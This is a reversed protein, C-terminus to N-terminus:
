GLIQSRHAAKTLVPIRVDPNPNLTLFFFKPKNVLILSQYIITDFDDRAM